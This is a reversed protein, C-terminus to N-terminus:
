AEPATKRQTKWFRICEKTAKIAFRIDVIKQELAKIRLEERKIERDIDKKTM